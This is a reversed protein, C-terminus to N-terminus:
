DDYNLLGGRQYIDMQVDSFPKICFEKGTSENKVLGTLLNVTVTDDNRIYTGSKTNNIMIPLASNIADREYANGFSKAIILSVGLGRICDVAQQRRRGSGFDTGTFIIDGQEIESAFDEYGKVGEFAFQAMELPETISFYRKNYIKDVGVKDRKLYKIRGKIIIPRDYGKPKVEDEEPILMEGPECIYGAIASAAIIDASAVYEKYESRDCHMDSGVSCLTVHGLVDGGDAVPNYESDSVIVGSKKLIDVYGVDVAREWVSKTVPIVRMVVDESVKKGKMVTAITAIDKIGAGILGGVFVSDIRIKRKQELGIAKVVMANQLVRRKFESCDLVIESSYEAKDDAYVFSNEVSHKGFYSKVSSNPPIIVSLANLERSLAAFTLCDDVSFGEVIDGYLEVVYGVFTYKGYREVINFVIDYVSIGEPLEGQLVLKITEPVKFWIKSKAFAGAVDVSGMGQGFVGLAGLVNARPDSSVVVSGSKVIGSDIINMLGNGRDIDIVSVGYKRSFERCKQRGITNDEDNHKLADFTFCVSEPNSVHLDAKDLANVVDAGESDRCSCIDVSVDVYDGPKLDSNGSSAILIKEIITNGM